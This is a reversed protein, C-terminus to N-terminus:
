LPRPVPGALRLECFHLTKVPDQSVGAPLNRRLSQDLALLHQTCQVLLYLTSGQPCLAPAVVRVTRGRRIWLLLVAPRPRPQDAPKAPARAQQSFRWGTRRLATGRGALRARRVLVPPRRGPRRVLVAPKRRASGIWPLGPRPRTSRPPVARRRALMDRRRSLAPVTVLPVLLGLVARGVTPTTTSWCARVSPSEMTRVSATVRTRVAAAEVAPWLPPLRTVVATSTHATPPRPRLSGTASAEMPAPGVETLCAPCFWRPLLLLSSWRSGSTWQFWSSLHLGPHWCLKCPKILRSSTTSTLLSTPAQTETTLFSESGGRRVPLVRGM